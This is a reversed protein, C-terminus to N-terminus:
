AAFTERFPDGLGIAAGFPLRNLLAGRRQRPLQQFADVQGDEEPVYERKMRVLRLARERVPRMARPLARGAFVYERFQHRQKARLDDDSEATIRRAARLPQRRRKGHADAM